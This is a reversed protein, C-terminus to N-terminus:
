LKFINFDLSDIRTLEQKADENLKFYRQVYSTDIDVDEDITDHVM